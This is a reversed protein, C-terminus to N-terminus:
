GSPFCAGWCHYRDRICMKILLCSPDYRDQDEHEDHSHDRRHHDRIQYLSRICLLLPCRLFLFPLRLFPSSVPFDTESRTSATQPFVIEHDSTLSLRRAKGPLVINTERAAKRRIHLTPPHRSPLSSRSSQRSHRDRICM